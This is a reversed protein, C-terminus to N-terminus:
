CKHFFQVPAFGLKQCFETELHYFSESGIRNIRAWSTTLKGRADVAFEAKESLWNNILEVVGIGRPAKGDAWDPQAKQWMAAIM